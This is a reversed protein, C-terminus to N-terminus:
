RANLLEIDKRPAILVLGTPLRRAREEESLQVFSSSIDMANPDAAPVHFTTSTSTAGHMKSDLKIALNAIQEVSTFDEQMMVMAVRNEKKLGQEFHSILTPTEWGTATACLNFEHADAAVTGKQTLNQLAHEAKLKNKTNFYMAKFNVIFCDFAVLHATANDLLEITMPQAWSSAAGTLYSLTFVVESRDTQFLYPHALM